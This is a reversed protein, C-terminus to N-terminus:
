SKPCFYQIEKIETMTSPEARVVLANLGVDAHISVGSAAQSKGKEDKVDGMLNKLLDAMEKADAHQLRIVSAKGSFKSPKDLSLILAKVNDRASKEGRIILRNTNPEAYINSINFVTSKSDAKADTGSNENLDTRNADTAVMKDASSQAQVRATSERSLQKTGQALITSAAAAVKTSAAHRLQVSCISIKEQSKNFDDFELQRKIREAKQAVTIIETINGDEVVVLNHSRLILEQAQQWPVNILKLSMTGKVDDALVYNKKNVEALM